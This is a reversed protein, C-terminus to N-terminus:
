AAPKEVLVHKGAEAAAKAIQALVDNTTSVIVAQVDPRSVADRWDSVADPALAAAREVVPDAAAVLRHKGKLARARKQGILGCGIIAFNVRERSNYTSIILSRLCGHL